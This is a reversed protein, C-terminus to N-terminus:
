ATYVLRIYNLSRRELCPNSKRSAFTRLPLHFSPISALVPHLLIRAFASVNFKVYPLGPTDGPVLTNRDKLPIATKREGHEFRGGEHTIPKWGQGTVM